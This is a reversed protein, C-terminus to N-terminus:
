KILNGKVVLNTLKRCEYEAKLVLEEKEKYEMKGVEEEKRGEGEDKKEEKRREREEKGGEERRGENDRGEAERRKGGEERKGGVEERRKGGEEEEGLGKRDEEPGKRNEAPRLALSSFDISKKRTRVKKDYIDSVGTIENSILDLIESKRLHFSVIDHFFLIGQSLFYEVMDILSCFQLNWELLELMIQETKKIEETKFGSLKSM